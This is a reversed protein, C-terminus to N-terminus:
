RATCTRSSARCSSSAASRASRVAQASSRVARGRRPVRAHHRARRGRARHAGHGPRVDLDRQRQRVLRAHGPRPVPRVRARVHGLRAHRAQRAEARGLVGAVDERRRLGQDGPRAGHQPRLVTRWGHTCSWSTPKAPREHDVDEHREVRLRRRGARGDYADRPRRLRGRGREDRARRRARRHAAEALIPTEAGAHGVDHDSERVSELAGCVVPGGGGVRPQDGGDRDRARSLGLGVGGFQADVTIGFLGLSGLQPWLDRPFANDADLQAARPAIRDAAFRSVQDRLLASRTASASISTSCARLGKRSRRDRRRSLTHGRRGYNRPSRIDAVVAIASARGARREVAVVEDRIKGAGLIASPRRNSSRTPM